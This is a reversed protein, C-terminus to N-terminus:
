AIIGEAKLVGLTYSMSVMGNEYLSFLPALDRAPPLVPSPAPVGILAPSVAVGTLFGRRTTM